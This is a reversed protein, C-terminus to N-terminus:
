SVSFNYDTCAPLCPQYLNWDSELLRVGEQISYPIPPAVCLDPHISIPTIEKHISSIWIFRKVTQGTDTIRDAYPATWKLIAIEEEILCQFCFIILTLSLQLRHVQANKLSFVDKIVCDIRVLLWKPCKGRVWRRQMYTEGTEEDYEIQRLKDLTNGVPGDPRGPTLEPETADFYLFDGAEPIYVSCFVHITPEHIAEYLDNEVYSGCRYVEKTIHVIVYGAFTM